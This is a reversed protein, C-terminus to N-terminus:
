DVGLGSVGTKIEGEHFLVKRLAKGPSTHSISAQIPYKRLQEETPSCNAALAPNDLQYKMSLVHGELSLDSTPAKIDSYLCAPTIDVRPTWLAPSTIHVCLM